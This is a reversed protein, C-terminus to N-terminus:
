CMGWSKSDPLCPVPFFPRNVHASCRQPTVRTVSLTEQARVAAPPLPDLGWESISFALSRLNTQDMDCSLTSSSLTEGPVCAWTQCGSAWVAEKRGREWTGGQVRWRHHNGSLIAPTCPPVPSRQPWRIPLYPRHTEGEQHGLWVTLVKRGTEKSRNM